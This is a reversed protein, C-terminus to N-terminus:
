RMAAMYMLELNRATKQQVDAIDNSLDIAARGGVKSAMVNHIRALANLM